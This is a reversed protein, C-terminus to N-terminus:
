AALRSSQAQRRADHLARITRRLQQIETQQRHTLALLRQCMLRWTDRQEIADVAATAYAPTDDLDAGILLDALYGATSRYPLWQPLSMPPAEQAGDLGDAWAPADPERRRPPTATTTM